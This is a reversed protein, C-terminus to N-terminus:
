IISCELESNSKKEWREKRLDWKYSTIDPLTENFLSYFNPHVQKLFQESSWDSSNNDPEYMEGAQLSFFAEDFVAKKANEQCDDKKRKFLIPRLKTLMNFTSFSEPTTSSINSYQLAM